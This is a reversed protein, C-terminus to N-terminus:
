AGRLAVKMAGAYREWADLRSELAKRGAATLKYVKRKRDGTGAKWEGVIAGDAELGYLLPYITGEPFDFAEASRAKIDQVIQYGYSPREKLVLLILTTAAGRILHKDVAELKRM